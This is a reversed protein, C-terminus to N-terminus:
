ERRKKRLRTPPFGYFKRFVNYFSDGNKYGVYVGIENISMNTDRLLALSRKMRENTLFKYVTIGYIVKFGSELKRTNLKVKDALLSVTCPFQLNKLLYEHAQEIKRIDENQYVEQSALHKLCEMSIIVYKSAFFMPNSKTVPNDLLMTHIEYLIEPTIAHPEGLLIGPRAEMEKLFDILAAFHDRIRPLYIDTFELYLASHQGQDTTLDFSDRPIYALFYQRKPLTTNDNHNKYRFNSELNFILGIFDRELFAPLKDGDEAPGHCHYMIGANTEDPFGLPFAYTTINFAM